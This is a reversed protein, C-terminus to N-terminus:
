DLSEYAGLFEESTYLSKFKSTFQEYTAENENVFSEYVEKSIWKDIILYTGTEVNKIFEQGLYDENTEFLKFWSGNRGYEKEFESATSPNCEYKWVLTYIKM